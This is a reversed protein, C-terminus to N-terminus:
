LREPATEAEGSRCTKCESEPPQLVCGGAPLSFEWLFGGSEPKEETV